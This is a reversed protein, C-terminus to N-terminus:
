YTHNLCLKIIIFVSKIEKKKSQKKLLVLTRATGEIGSAGFGAYPCALAKNFSLFYTSADFIKSSNSFSKLFM